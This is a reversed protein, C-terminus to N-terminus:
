PNHFVMKLYTHVLYMLNRERCKETREASQFVMEKVQGPARYM